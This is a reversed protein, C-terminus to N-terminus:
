IWHFSTKISCVVVVNWEITNRNESLLKSIHAHHNPPGYQTELVSNSPNQNLQNESLLLSYNVHESPVQGLWPKM